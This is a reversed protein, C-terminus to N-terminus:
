EYMINVTGADFTDTGNVTNLRIATLTDSLTVLGGGFLVGVTRDTGSLGGVWNNSGTNIFTYIGSYAASSSTSSAIRFGATSTAIPGATSTYNDTTSQYGTTTYTPGSGTGFQILIFSSGSLSVANLIVTVRKVWSPINSAATVTTGSTTNVASLTTLSGVQVGTNTGPLTMGTTGDLIITM